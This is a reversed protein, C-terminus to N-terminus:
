KCRLVEELNRIRAERCAIERELKEVLAEYAGAMREHAAQARQEEGFARAAEGYHFHLVAREGDVSRFLRHVREYADSASAAGAAERDTELYGLGLYCLYRLFAEGSTPQGDEALRARAPDLEDPGLEVSVVRTEAQPLEVGAV